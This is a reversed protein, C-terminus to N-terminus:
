VHILNAVVLYMGAAILLMGGLTVVPVWMPLWWPLWALWGRHERSAM